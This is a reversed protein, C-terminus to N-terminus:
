NFEKNHTLYSLIELYLSVCRDWAENGLEQAIERETNLNEGFGKVNEIEANLKGYVESIIDLCEGLLLFLYPDTKEVKHMYRVGSCWHIFLRSASIKLINNTNEFKNDAMENEIFQMLEIFNRHTIFDLNNNLNDKM